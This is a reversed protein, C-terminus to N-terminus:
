VPTVKSLADTLKKRSYKYIIFAILAVLPLAFYWYTLIEHFTKIIGEGFYWVPVITVSAWCWASILNVFAFKKASYKTLGISIPLITRMGYMYRQAFVIWVGYKRLLLTALAFKRNHHAFKKNIYAKNYRGTYFYMQDGAFGGLGATFIAWFLVMHGSHSLLGAMILGLEGELISWIFLIGYGYKKLLYSLKNEFGSVPVNILTYILFIASVLIVFFLLKGGNKQLWITLEKVKCGAKKEFYM